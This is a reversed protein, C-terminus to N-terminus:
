STADEKVRSSTGKIYYEDQCEGDPLGAQSVMETEARKKKKKEKVLVVSM